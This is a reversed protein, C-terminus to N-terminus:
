ASPKDKVLNDVTNFLVLNEMKQEFLSAMMNAFELDTKSFIGNEGEKETMNIVGVKEEGFIKLPLIILSKTQYRPNNKRSIEPHTEINTAYMRKGQTHVYWALGEDGEKSPEDEAYLGNKKVCVLKNKESNLLFLSVKKAGLLNGCVRVTENFLEKVDKADLIKLLPDFKKTIRDDAVEDAHDDKKRDKENVAAAPLVPSREKLLALISNVTSDIDRENGPLSANKKESISNFYFLSTISAILFLAFLLAKINFVTFKLNENGSPLLNFERYLFYAWLVIVGVVVIDLLINFVRSAGSKKEM